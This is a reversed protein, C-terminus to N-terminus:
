RVVHLKSTSITQHYVGNSEYNSVSFNPPPFKVRRVGELSLGCDVHACYHNWGCNCMKDM